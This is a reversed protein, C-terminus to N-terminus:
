KSASKTIEDHPYQGNTPIWIIPGGDMSSPHLVWFPMHEPRHIRELAPGPAVPWKGDPPWSQLGAFAARRALDSASGLYRSILPPCHIKLERLMLQAVCNIEWDMVFELRNRLVGALAPYTYGAHLYTRTGITLLRRADQWPIGADVLAAYLEKGTALYWEIAEQLDTFDQETGHLFNEIFKFNTIPSALARGDDIIPQGPSINAKHQQCARWITEPMTWGRQRWDNDRGGHQMFGAGIRSRVIQHTAARTVGDITFDFTLTELAQQLTKGAFCSEVYDREESRLKAWGSIASWQNPVREDEYWRSSHQEKIPNRDVTRSPGDGWNAQLQDYLRPFFDQIPGWTDLTVQLAEPGRALPTDVHEDTHIGHPRHKADAYDAM